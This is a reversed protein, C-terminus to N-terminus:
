YGFHVYPVWTLLAIDDEGLSERVKRTAHDLAYAAQSSDLGELGNERFLYQYFETAFEPGHIDSISWMTGVVGRYGAALMGASLHVVEESLKPDGKSTQCASLFALDANSIKQRMIELLELRGDHLHVGSKLPEDMDQIGHCAFHVWNRGRMETRVNEITAEADELLLVDVVSQNMLEKLNHAEKQTWPISSLGPTNPQSILILNTCKSTTTSASFKENLSGVTPTYSSVVFDSVCQGAEYASGYIGAAHLPLFSLPGTPCWWIRRRDSSNPRSEPQSHSLKTCFSM